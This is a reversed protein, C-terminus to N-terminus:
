REKFARAVGKSIHEMLDSHRNYLDDLIRDKLAGYSRQLSVLHNVQADSMDNLIYHAAKRDEDDYYVEDIADRIDDVTVPAFGDEAGIRYASILASEADPNERILADLGPHGTPKTTM